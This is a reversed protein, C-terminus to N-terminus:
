AIRTVQQADEVIYGLIEIEFRIRLQSIVAIVLWSIWTTLHLIEVIVIFCELIVVIITVIIICKINIINEFKKIATITFFINIIVNEAAFCIAIIVQIILFVRCSYSSGILICNIWFYKLVMWLIGLLLPIEMIIKSIRHILKLRLLMMIPYSVDSIFKALSFIILMSLIQLNPAFHILSSLANILACSLIALQTMFFFLTRKRKFLRWCAYESECLIVVGAGCCIGSILDQFSIM